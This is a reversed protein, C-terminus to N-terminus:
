ESSTPRFRYQQMSAGCGDAYRLYLTGNTYAWVEGDGTPLHLAEKMKPAYTAYLFDNLKSALDQLAKEEATPTKEEDGLEVSEHHGTELLFAKTEGKKVLYFLSGKWTGIVDKGNSLVITFDHAFTKLDAQKREEQSLGLQDLYQDASVQNILVKVHGGEFAKAKAELDKLLSELNQAGEVPSFAQKMKPIDQPEPQYVYVEEPKAKWLIRGTRDIYAPTDFIPNKLEVQAVGDHFDEVAQFLPSAIVTKGTPDIYSYALIGTDSETVVWALGESFSGASHFQPAIVVKGEHNIYGYHNGIEVAALGESFDNAYSFALPIVEKGNLDIFGYKRGDKGDKVVRALGELFPGVEDYQPSIVVKGDRNIFGYKDGQQIPLLVQGSPANEASTLMPAALDHASAVGIASSLLAAFLILTLVKKM